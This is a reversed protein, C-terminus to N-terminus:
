AIVFVTAARDDLEEVGFNQGAAQVGMRVRQQLEPLDVLFNVRREAFQRLVGQPEGGIRDGASRSAVHDIVVKLIHDRCPGQLAVTQSRLDLRHKLSRLEAAYWDIFLHGVIQYRLSLREEILGPVACIMGFLATALLVRFTSAVSSQARAGTGFVMRLM